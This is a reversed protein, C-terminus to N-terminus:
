ANHKGRNLEHKYEEAKEIISSRWTEPSYTLAVALREFVDLLEPLTIDQTITISMDLSGFRSAPDAPSFVSVTMTNEDMYDM